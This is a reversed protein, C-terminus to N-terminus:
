DFRNSLGLPLLRWTLGISVDSDDGIGLFIGPFWRSALLAGPYVNLRVKLRETGNLLLSAMLSDNRDWFLGGSWRFQVDKPDAKVMAPGTGWSLSDTDTIKHSLGALTTLGFFVFPKHDETRFLPPRVAWSEGLNAFERARPDFMPQSAWEVMRLKESVFRALPDWSFLAIGLPRMIWFDAVEDDSKTTSKEMAEQVFEAAMSLTLASARPFPYDHWQFWELNKRYIMGGGLVHLALNPIIQVSDDLHSYDVPFIQSNVFHRFGGARDIASVPNTLDRWVTHVHSAFHDDDFSEPLQLSDLSYRAFSSLPNFESESGYELPKYFLLDEQAIEAAQPCWSVLLCGMGAACVIWRTWGKGCCDGARGANSM